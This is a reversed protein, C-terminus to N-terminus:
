SNRTRSASSKRSEGDASSPPPSAFTSFLRSRFARSTTQLRRRSALQARIGALLADGLADRDIPALMATFGSGEGPRQGDEHAKSVLTGSCCGDNWRVERPQPSALVMLRSPSAITISFNMSLARPGSQLDLAELLLRRRSTQATGERDTSLRLGFPQRADAFGGIAGRSSRRSERGRKCCAAFGDLWPLARFRDSPWRRVADKYRSTDIFM